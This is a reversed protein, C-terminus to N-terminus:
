ELFELRKVVIGTDGMEGYVHAKAVPLFQDPNCSALTGGAPGCTSGGDFTLPVSHGPENNETFVIYWYDPDLTPPVGKLIFGENDFSFEREPAVDGHSCEIDDIFWGNEKHLLSVISQDADSTKVMIQAKDELQFVVKSKIKEPLGAQCLVPDPESSERAAALKTRLAESLIPLTAVGSAYPDTSTSKAAELWSGYFDSVIDLPEDTSVAQNNDGGEGNSSNKNLVKYLSVGGIIVLILGVAGGVAFIKQKSNM